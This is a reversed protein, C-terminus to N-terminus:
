MAFTLARIVLLHTLKRALPQFDRWNIRGGRPLHGAIGVVLNLRMHTM